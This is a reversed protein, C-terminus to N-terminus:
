VFCVCFYRKNGFIFELQNNHTLMSLLSTAERDHMIRFSRELSSVHIVLQLALTTKMSGIDHTSRAYDIGARLDYSRSEPLQAM